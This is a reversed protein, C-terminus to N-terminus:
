HKAKKKIMRRQENHRDKSQLFIFTYFDYEKYTVVKKAVSVSESKWRRVSMKFAAM